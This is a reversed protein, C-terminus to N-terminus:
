KKECKFEENFIESIIQQLQQNTHFLHFVLPYNLPNTAFLQTWMIASYSERNCHLEKKAFAYATAPCMATWLGSETCDFTIRCWSYNSSRSGSHIEKTFCVNSMMKRHIEFLFGPFSRFICYLVFDKQIETFDEFQRFIPRFNRMATWIKISKQAVETLLEIMIEIMIFHKRALAQFFVIIIEAKKVFILSVIANM